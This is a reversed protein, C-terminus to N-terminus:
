SYTKATKRERIGVIAVISMMLGLIILGWEGVTPVDDPTPMFNIGDPSGDGDINFSRPGVDGNANTYCAPVNSLEASYTGCPFPGALSYNGGADATATGVLGGSSDFISVTTGSFDCGMLAIMGSIGDECGACVPPDEGTVCITASLNYCFPLIPCTLDPLLVGLDASGGLGPGTGGAMGGILVQVDDISLTAPGFPSNNIGDFVAQLTNGSPSLGLVASVVGGTCDVADLDAIIQDLEAQVHTIATLCIEEGTALGAINGSADPIVATILGTTPDTIIYETIEGANASGGTATLTLPGGATMGDPCVTQESALTPAGADCPPCAASPCVATATFAIDTYCAPDAGGFATALDAAALTPIAETNDAGTGCPYASPLASEYTGCIFDEPDDLDGDPVGGLGDGNDFGVTATAPNNCDGATELITVAGQEPNFVLTVTEVPCDANIAVPNGAADYEITSLYVDLTFPECSANGFVSTVGSCDGPNGFFVVEGPAVSNLNELIDAGTTYGSVADLIGDGGTGDTEYFIEFQAVNGPDTLDSDLSCNPGFVVTGNCDSTAGDFDASCNITIPACPPATGACTMAIYGNDSGAATNTSTGCAGTEYIAITYTGSETATFTLECSSGADLGFADIAGSPANVTFEAPWAQGGTGPGAASNCISVTYTVGAVVNDILYGEESWVEFDTLENFPCAGGADDCPAGGFTNNYDTFPGAIAATCQANVNQFSFCCIAFLFLINLYKNKM